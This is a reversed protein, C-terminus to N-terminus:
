SSHSDIRWAGPRYHSTGRATRQPSNGAPRLATLAHERQPRPWPRCRSRSPTAAAAEHTRWPCSNSIQTSGGASTSGVPSRQAAHRYITTRRPRSRGRRHDQRRRTQHTRAVIALGTGGHHRSRAEDTRGLREFILQRDAPAIDNGDDDVRLLVAPGQARVTLTAIQTAPRLANDLLNRGVQVLHDPNCRVQGTSVRSHRHRHCCSHQAPRARHRRPRRAPEHGPTTPRPPEASRAAPPRRGDASHPPERRPASLEFKMLAVSSM